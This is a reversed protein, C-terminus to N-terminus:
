PLVFTLSKQVMFSILDLLIEIASLYRLQVLVGDYFRNRWCKSVLNIPYLLPSSRLCYVTLM